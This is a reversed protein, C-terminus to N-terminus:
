FHFKKIAIYIALLLEQKLDEDIGVYKKKLKISHNRCITNLYPTYNNVCIEFNMNVDDLLKTLTVYKIKKYGDDKM